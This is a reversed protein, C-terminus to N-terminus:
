LDSGLTWFSRAFYVLPSAAVPTAPTVATRVRGIILVHDGVQRRSEAVCDVYALVDTVAPAHGPPSGGCFGDIFKAVGTRAGILAVAKHTQALINIGFTGDRAIDQATSTHRTVSIFVRAPAPSISCCSSITLGWPRSDHWTTVLVIGCALRSMAAKFPDSSESPSPESRDAQGLDLRLRQPTAHLSGDLEEVVYSPVESM